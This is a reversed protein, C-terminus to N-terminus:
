ETVCWFLKDSAAAEESLPFICDENNKRRGRDSVGLPKGLTISM